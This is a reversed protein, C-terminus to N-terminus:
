GEGDASLQGFHQDFEEPTLEREANRSLMAKVSLDPRLV